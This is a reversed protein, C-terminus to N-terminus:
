QVAVSAQPLVVLQVNATVTLPPVQGGITRWQGFLMLTTELFCKPVKTEQTLVAVPPQGSVVTVQLGGLPLKKGIPVVITVQVAHSLQPWQVLQKKRTLTRGGCKM